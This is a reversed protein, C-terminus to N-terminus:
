PKTRRPLRLDPLRKPLLHMRRLRAVAATSGQGIVLASSGAVALLAGVILLILLAYRAPGSSGPNRDYGLSVIRQRSAGASASASPTTGPTQSAKSGKGKRRDGTQNLVESAAKLTQARMKATLPLYGPPLEGPGYGSVQGPGAVYDLWQAIKTAARKSIGGTPVMAYIVMTLPYADRFKKSTNSFNFQQTIHNKATTMDGLAATMSAATPKVYNGAPNELAAVPMLYAAADPQDLIAFLSRTGPVEPNLAAYSGNAQPTWQTGPSENNVQDQAVASLPFIPVYQRQIPPFPDFSSLSNTPLTMGLYWSNIHSGWPDFSGDAFAKAAKNTAIWKTLEETMDSEGSLVSPIEYANADSVLPFHPNLKRFEPDSFITTPDNDVGNDCTRGKKPPGNGCGENAFNFSQTLLKLVLRPDLKLRSDQKGTKADDVYYAVSEATIAVPAYTFPRTSGGTGSVPLTTFAVDTTPPSSTFDERALPEGQTGDYRIVVPSAASCLATQWSTMARVLMPSGIASFQSNRVPCDTPTPSFHLPVIIRDRWSCIGDEQSFSFSGVAYEFLGEDESHDRCDGDGANGGDAPDIILSCAHGEQCGLNPAEQATLLQIYATGTGNPSTTAYVTNYPGYQSEQAAAGSNNAGFCQSRKTPHAVSCEAIMVPYFTNTAQYPVNQSPTFGKWKVEVVENVLSGVQSVTVYSPSSYYHNRAANWMKPGRVVAGGRPAPPAGTSHSPKPAPSKSAAPSKSQAPSTSQAPSQSPQGAVRVSAHAVSANGAASPLLAVGMAMVGAGALACVRRALDLGSLRSGVTSRM